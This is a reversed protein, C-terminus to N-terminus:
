PACLSGHAAEALDGLFTSNCQKGDGDTIQASTAVEGVAVLPFSGEGACPDYFWIRLSLPLIIM